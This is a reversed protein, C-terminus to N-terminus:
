MGFRFFPRAWPIGGLIALVAVTFFIAAVRFKTSSDVAKKSRSRGIHAVVIAVLMTFAHEVVFFRIDGNAMAAGMDSFANTTIPSIGYLILGLLFQTDLGATFILGLRDDLDSWNGKQVVGLIAKVAAALGALLAIWRVWSHLFLIVSYM